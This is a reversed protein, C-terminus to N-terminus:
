RIEYLAGKELIEDTMKYVSDIIRKAYSANGESESLNSKAIEGSLGMTCVALAAARTKEDRNACVFATMMASLQCGTGTVDKMASTGNRIVYSIEGDTVLDIKGTVAAISGTKKSFDKLFELVSSINEETVEDGLGADVGSTRASLGALTKIESINGRIVDFKIKKVLKLATSTRLRSAGAGVPDLVLIKGLRNANKGAIFMSRITRSNLTGINICLGDCLSSIDKVDKKEDSMIPSGGAALVINAVDNVTVYNTICHVLPHKSRVNEITKM